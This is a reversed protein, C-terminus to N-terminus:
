APAQPRDPAFVRADDQFSKFEICNGSPDRVFMTAQEGVEGKFRVHPELVFRVRAARLRDALAHWDDWPLILGSHPVPVAEHDVDGQMAVPTHRDVLHATIQHGWFDFDIWHDSIRGLRCGLLDVYFRRADDISTVPFALHFRCLDV